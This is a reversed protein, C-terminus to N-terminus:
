RPYGRIKQVSGLQNNDCDHKDSSQPCKRQQGHPNLPRLGVHAICFFVYGYSLLLFTSLFLLLFLHFLILVMLHGHGKTNDTQAAESRCQRNGQRFSLFFNNYYVSIFAPHLLQALICLM